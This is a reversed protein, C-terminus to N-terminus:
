LFWRNVGFLGRTRASAWLSSRGMTSHMLYGWRTITYVHNCSHLHCMDNLAMFAATTSGICVNKCEFTVHVSDAIGPWWLFTANRARSNWNWKRAWPLSTHCLKQDLQLVAGTSYRAAGSQNMSAESAKAEAGREATWTYRWRWGCIACYLQNLTSHQYRQQKLLQGICEFSM